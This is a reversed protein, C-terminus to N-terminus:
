HGAAGEGEPGREEGGKHEAAFKEVRSIEAKAATNVWNDGEHHMVDPSVGAFFVAMLVLATVLFYHVIPQTVNIHMFYRAVLYAKVVAVGFATILTVIPHGLLPGLISIILLVVLAAWIKVYDYHHTEGYHDDAHHAEHQTAAAM